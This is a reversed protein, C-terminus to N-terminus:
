MYKAWAPAFYGLIAGFIGFLIIKELSYNSTVAFTVAGALGLLGCFEPQPRWKKSDILPLGAFFLYMGFLFGMLFFRLSFEKLLGGLGFLVGGIFVILWTEKDFFLSRIRKNNM